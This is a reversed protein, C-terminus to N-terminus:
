VICESTPALLHAISIALQWSLFCINYSTIFIYYVTMQLPGRSVFNCFSEYDLSIFPQTPALLASPCYLAM